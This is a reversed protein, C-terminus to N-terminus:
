AEEDAGRRRTVVVGVVVILLAAIAIWIVPSVGGDGDGAGTAGGESAPEINLLSYYGYQFLISGDETPQKVFGTWRDSRYAQLYNDYWLV